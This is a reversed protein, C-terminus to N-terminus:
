SDTWQSKYLDPILKENFIFSSPSWAFTEETIESTM